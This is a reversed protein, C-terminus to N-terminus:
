STSDLPFFNTGKFPISVRAEEERAKTKRAALFHAAKSWWIYINHRVVPEFYHLWTVM